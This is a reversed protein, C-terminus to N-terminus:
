GQASDEYVKTKTAGHQGFYKADKKWRYPTTSPRGTREFVMQCIRTGRKITIPYPTLNSVELTATGKFGPDFFGANHINLGIRAISSRGQIFGAIWDAFELEEITSWLHFEGPYITIEDWGSFEDFRQDILDKDELTISKEDRGNPHVHMIQAHGDLHLDLSSPGIYPDDVGSIKIEGKSIADRIEGDSLIM